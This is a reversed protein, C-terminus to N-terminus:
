RARGVLVIHAVSISCGYTRVAIDREEEDESGNLGFQHVM